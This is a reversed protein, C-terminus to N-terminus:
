WNTQKNTQKGVVNEVELDSQKVRQEYFVIWLNINILLLKANWLYVMDYLASKATVFM